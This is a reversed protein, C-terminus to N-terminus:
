CTVRKREKITRALQMLQQQGEVGAPVQGEIELDPSLDESPVDQGSLIIALRDAQREQRAAAVFELGGLGKARAGAVLIDYDTARIRRLADQGDGVADVQYGADKLVMAHVM